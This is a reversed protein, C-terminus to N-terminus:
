QSSLNDRLINDIYCHFHGILGNRTANGVSRRKRAGGCSRMDQGVEGNGCSCKYYGRKNECSGACQPNEERCYKKLRCSSGDVDLEFGPLCDCEYSGEINKCRMECSRQGALGDPWSGFIASEMIVCEDVDKCMGVTSGDM